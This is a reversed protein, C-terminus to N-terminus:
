RERRDIKKRRAIIVMAMVFASAGIMCCFVATYIELERVHEKDPKPSSVTIVTEMSEFGNLRVKIVYRGDKSPTFDFNSGTHRFEGNVFWLCNKASDASMNKFGDMEFRYETGVNFARTSDVIKGDTSAILELKSVSDSTVPMYDVSIRIDATQEIEGYEASLHKWVARVITEGFESKPTYSIEFGSGIKEDGAFWDVSGNGYESTPVVNLKFSIPKVSGLKQNILNLDSIEIRADCTAFGVLRNIDFVNYTGVKVGRDNETVVQTYANRVLEALEVSNIENGGEGALAKYRAALLAAGFSVIPTAMSTGSLSKYEFDKQKIDGDASYIGTGSACLDYCNGYNSTNSLVIKGDETHTYNMVGIVNPLAAPYRKVNDGDNGAAAVLVAKTHTDSSNIGAFGSSDSSLSLNIVDAGKEIAFDVASKVDSGKFSDKEGELLTKYHYSAKIPLIKIYPELELSHILTAVIGTVHTGHKRNEDDTIDNEAYGQGTVTNKLIANGSKDRLLVDYLGVGSADVASGDPKGYADYKGSFLEHEISVGSDIVAIIIPNKKLYEFDYASNGKWSNVTTKLQAIGLYEDATWWDANENIVDEVYGAPLLADAIDPAGLFVPTFILCLVLAAIAFRGASTKRNKLTSRKM